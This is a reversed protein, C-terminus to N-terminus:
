WFIQRLLNPQNGALSEYLIHTNQSTTQKMNSLLVIQKTARHYQGLSPLANSEKNKVKTSGPEFGVGIQPSM